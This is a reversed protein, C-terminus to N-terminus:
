RLRFVDHIHNISINNQIDIKSKYSIIKLKLLEIINLDDGEQITCKLILHCYTCRLLINKDLPHIFSNLADYM